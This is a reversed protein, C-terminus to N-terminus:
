PTGKITFSFRGETPHGDHAAVHWLVTYSGPALQKLNVELLTHDNSNVQGDGNDVKHQKADFVEISSFLPELESDFWIKVKPPPAELQSGVRPDSHDPFAHAWLLGPFLLLSGLVIVTGKSRRSM